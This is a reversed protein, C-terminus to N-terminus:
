SSGAIWFGLLTECIKAFGMSTFIVLQNFAKVVSFNTSAIRIYAFYGIISVVIIGIGYAYGLKPLWSRVMDKLSVKGSEERVRAMILNTLEAPPEQEPLNDLCGVLEKLVELDKRCDECVALHSELEQRETDSLLHELYDQLKSQLENHKMM